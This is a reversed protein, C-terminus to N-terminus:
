SLQASHRKPRKLGPPKVLICDSALRKGLIVQSSETATPIPIDAKLVPQEDSPEAVQVKPIIEQTCTQSSIQM